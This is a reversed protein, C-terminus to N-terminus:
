SAWFTKTPKDDITLYLNYMFSIENIVEPINGYIKYNEESMRLHHPSNKYNVLHGFGGQNCVVNLDNIYEEFLEQPYKSTKKYFYDKCVNELKLFLLVRKEFDNFTTNGYEYIIDKIEPSKIRFSIYEFYNDYREKSVLNLIIFDLIHKTSYNM